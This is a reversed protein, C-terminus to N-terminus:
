CYTNERIKNNLILHFSCTNFLEKKLVVFFKSQISVYKNNFYNWYVFSFIIYTIISFHIPSSLHLSHM